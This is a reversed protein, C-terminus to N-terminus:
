PGCAVYTGNHKNILDMLYQYLVIWVVTFVTKAKERCYGTNGSSPAGWVCKVKAAPHDIREVEGEGSHQGRRYCHIAWLFTSLSHQSTSIYIIYLGM